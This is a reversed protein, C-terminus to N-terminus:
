TSSDSSWGTLQASLWRQAAAIEAGTITHGAQEWHLTVAAGAQRLLTALREVQEPPVLPDFRGAGIFVAVGALDPQSEPEFPLL